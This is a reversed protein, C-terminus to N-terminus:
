EDRGIERKLERIDDYIESIRNEIGELWDSDVTTKRCLVGILHLHFDDVEVVQVYTKNQTNANYGEVKDEYEPKLEHFNTIKNDTKNKYVAYKM